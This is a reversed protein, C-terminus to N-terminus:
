AATRTVTWQASSGSGAFDAYGSGTYGAHQSSKATGGGLTADEAQLVVSTTPPPTAPNLTVATTYDTYGGDKDSIRGRVTFSGAAAYTFSAVESTSDAVEDADTFDGDNNFDFSYRFGAAVDVSSPDSANAFSVTTSSGLTVPAATGFTATPNANAVTVTATDFSTAGNRTARLAVTRSAPGEPNGLSPSSGTYTPRFDFGNYNLDWELVADTSSGASSLILPQGETVTYSGNAKAVPPVPGPAYAYFETTRSEPTFAELYIWGNSVHHKYVISLGNRGAYIEDSVMTGADTGDTRWMEEGRDPSEGVFYLADGSAYLFLPSGGRDTVLQTGAATGDSSWLRREVNSIAVNYYARGNMVTLLSPGYSEVPTAASISATGAARGDSSWLTFPAGAESQAMYLVRDGISVLGYTGFKDKVDFAVVGLDVPTDGADGSMKFLRVGGDVNALFFVSGNARVLGRAVVTFFHTTAGVAAVPMTGATTGNTKWIQTTSSSGRRIFYLEDGLAYFEMNDSVTTGQPFTFVISVDPGIARFLVQAGTVTSQGVAYYADNLGGYVEHDSMIGADLLPVPKTGAKTGDTVWLASIGTPTNVRFYAYDGVTTLATTHTNYVGARSVVGDAPGPVTDSLLSAGSADVRWLEYGHVGDDAILISADGLRVADKPYSPIKLVNIDALIRTGSIAGDTVWTERGAAASHHSFYVLGGHSSVPAAFNSHSHRPITSRVLVTVSDDIPSVLSVVESADNGTVIMLGLPTAFKQGDGSHSTDIAKLSQMAPDTVYLVGGATLYLKGATAILTEFSVGYLDFASTTGALTGDTRWLSTGGGNPSHGFFYAYDGLSAMRGRPQVAVSGGVLETTGAPTGDTRLLTTVSGSALRGQFLLTGNSMEVVSPTTWSPVMVTAGGLPVTGNATGDSVYLPKLAPVAGVNAFIFKGRAVGMPQLGYGGPGPVRDLTIRTGEVTGDSIWVEVGTPADGAIFFARNGIVTLQPPKSNGVHEFSRLQATGNVTGDTRWLIIRESSQVAFLATGEDLAALQGFRHTQGNGLLDTLRTSAGAADVAWLEEGHLGDDASMLRKGNIVVPTSADSSRNFDSITDIMSVSLM